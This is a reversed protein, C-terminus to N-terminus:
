AQIWCLSHLCRPRRANAANRGANRGRKSKRRLRRPAKPKDVHELALVKRVRHVSKDAILAVEEEPLDSVTEAKHVGAQWATGSEAPEVGQAVMARILHEYLRAYTQWNRQLSDAAKSMDRAAKSIERAARVMDRNGTQERDSETM